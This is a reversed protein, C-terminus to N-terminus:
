RFLKDDFMGNIFENYTLGAYQDKSTFFIETVKRVEPLLPLMEIKNSQHKWGIHVYLGLFGDDDPKWGEEAAITFNGIKATHKPMTKQLIYPILTNLLLSGATSVM